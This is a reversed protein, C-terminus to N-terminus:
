RKKLIIEVNEAGTKSSPIVTLQKELANRNQL